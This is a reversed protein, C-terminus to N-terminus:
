SSAPPRASRRARRGSSSSPSRRSCGPRTRASSTTASSPAASTRRLCSPRRRQERQHLLAVAEHRRVVQGGVLDDPELGDLRGVRADADLRAAPERLEDVRQGGQGREAVGGRGVARQREGPHEGRREVAAPRVLVRRVEGDDVPVPVGADDRRAQPEPRPVEQGAVVDVQVAHEALGLQEDARELGAPPHGAHHRRRDREVRVAEDQRGARRAARAEAGCQRLHERPDEVLAQEGCSATSRGRSWEVPM